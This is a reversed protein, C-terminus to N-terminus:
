PRTFGTTSEGLTAGADVAQADSLVVLTATASTRLRGQDDVIRASADLTTDGPEDISAELRYRKQVRIPHHFEASFEATVAFRGAVAIAAWAMAEDLLALQV